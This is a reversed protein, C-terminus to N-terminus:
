YFFIFSKFKGDIKFGFIIDGYYIKLPGFDVVYFNM